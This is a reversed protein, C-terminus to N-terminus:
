GSSNVKVTRSLLVFAVTVSNRVPSNTAVWRNAIAREGFAGTVLTKVTGSVLTGALPPEIRATRVAVSGAPYVFM